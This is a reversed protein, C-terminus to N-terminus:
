NMHPTALLLPGVAIIEGQQHPKEKGTDLIYLIEIKSKTKIPSKTLTAM